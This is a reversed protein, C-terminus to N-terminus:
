QAVAFELRGAAEPRMWDDALLSYLYHDEWAGAIKLYQRLYGERRFGSKELLCISRQNSPLCAAEVRHLGEIDFVFPKLAEIARHMHGKGAYAEGMWYGLTCSQAVGRRVLGVTVGGHLTTGSGDFLLFSYSARERADRRYRLMRLSFAQRSLEDSTWSPEWPALFDRSAQRLSRWAEYDRRRPLRLLVGDGRVTPLPPGSFVDFLRM